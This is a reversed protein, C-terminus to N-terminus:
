GQAAGLARAFFETQLNKADNSYKGFGIHERPAGTTAWTKVALEAGGIGYKGRLEEVFRRQVEWPVMEDAESHLVLMPVPAWGDLHGRPDLRRVRERPHDVPWPKVPLGFEAPFYMGELWGCTGEVSAALFAHRDCLRRLTVMGGLSMGGIALRAADIGPVDRLAAVAGDLEGLMGEMVDLTRAPEQMAADLREGHGPLDLAVAAMGARLWRLYRGPDLEKSATRGHLWVVAPARGGGDPIAAMAPVGALTITKAREALYRPFQSFRDTMSGM